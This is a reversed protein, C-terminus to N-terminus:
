MVNLSLKIPKMTQPYSAPCKSSPYCCINKGTKGVYVWGRAVHTTSTCYTCAEQEASNFM